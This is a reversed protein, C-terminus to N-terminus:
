EYNGGGKTIEGKEIAWNILESKSYFIEDHGPLQYQSVTSVTSYVSFDYKTLLYNLAQNYSDFVKYSGPQSSDGVLYLEVERADKLDEYYRAFNLDKTLVEKSEVQFMSSFQLFLHNIIEDNTLETTSTLSSINPDYIIYKNDTNNYEVNKAQSWSNFPIVYENEEANQYDPKGDVINPLQVIKIPKIDSIVTEIAKQISYTDNSSIVNGNAFTLNNVFYKSQSTNNSIDSEIKKYISNVLTEKESNNIDRYDGLIDFVDSPRSSFPTNTAIPQYSFVKRINNSVPVYLGNIIDKAQIYKLTDLSEYLKGDYYYQDKVYASTIKQPQILKMKDIGDEKLTLLGWFMTTKQGGNWIYSISSDNSTYIYSYYNTKPNFAGQLLDLVAFSVDLYPLFKTISKSLSKFKNILDNLTGDKLSNLITNNNLIKDLNNFFKNVNSYVDKIANSRSISSSEYNNNGKKIESILQNIKEQDQNISSFYKDLWNVPKLNTLAQCVIKLSNNENNRNEMIIRNLLQILVDHLNSNQFDIRTLEHKYNTLQLSINYILNFLMFDQFSIYDINNILNKFMNGFSNDKNIISKFNEFISNNYETSNPNNKLHAKAQEFLLKYASNFFSTNITLDAALSLDEADLATATEINRGDKWQYWFDNTTTSSFMLWLKEYQKDYQANLSYSGNTTTRQNKIFNNLITFDYPLLGNAMTANTNALNIINIANIFESFYRIQDTYYKIDANFDKTNSKFDLIKEFSIKEKEHGKQSSYLLEAPILKAINKDIEQAIKNFIVRTEEILNNKAGYNILSDIIWSYSLIIAYFTNYSKGQQITNMFNLYDQYLTANFEKLNNFYTKLDKNISKINIIPLANEESETAAEEEVLIIGLFNAIQQADKEQAVLWDDNSVKRWSKTNTINQIDDTAVTFYPGFLTNADEKSLDILYSSKGSTSSVKTYDVDSMLNKINLPNIDSASLYYKTGDAPMTIELYQNSNTKIFNAFEIKANISENSTGQDILHNKNISSSHNNNSSLISIEANNKTKFGEGNQGYYESSLYLQLEEKNKFYMGNFYYADHVAFYSKKALDESEFLSNNLGRYITTKDINNNFQIRSLDNFSIGNVDDSVINQLSTTGSIKQIESAVAERLLAPDTYYVMQGNKTISWKNRTEIDATGILCSQQIYNELDLYSNFTHDGMLYNTSLVANNNKLTSSLSVSTVCIASVALFGSIGIISRLKKNKLNLKSM